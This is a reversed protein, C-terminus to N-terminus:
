PQGAKTIWIANGIIEGGEHIIRAEIRGPRLIPAQLLMPLRYSIHTRDPHTIATPAIPVPAKVADNGPLTVELTISSFRNEIETEFLFMFVLQPAVVQDAPISIDNLYVGQLYAKGGLSFLIDDAVLISARRAGTSIKAMVHKAM